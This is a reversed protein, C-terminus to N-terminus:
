GSRKWPYVLQAFFTRPLRTVTGYAVPWHMEPMHYTGFLRDFLPFHVSYNTDIAPKDRSHHWHHYQPTVFLYKLPGTPIGVNAHTFVAQLAAVVVYMDLAAKDPGLLYLPIMGRVVVPM